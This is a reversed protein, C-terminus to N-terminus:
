KPLYPKCGALIETPDQGPQPRIEISVVPRGYPCLRSFFGGADLSEIFRTIDEHGYVGNFVEFPPHMDGYLPDGPTLVCNAIHAHVLCDGAAEVAEEINEGLQAAHSMDLTIGCNAHHRRVDSVVSASLRTPGLLQRQHVDTDFPELCVTLPDDPNQTVAYSCLEALSDKFASIAPRHSSEGQGRGSSILINRGGVEYAMDILQETFRLADRRESSDTSSLNYGGSLLPPGGSFMVQLGSERLIGAVKSRMAKDKIWSVEIAGFFDDDLIPELTAVIDGTGSGVSPFLAYHVVGFLRKM